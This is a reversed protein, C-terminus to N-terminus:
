FRKLVLFFSFRGEANHFVRVLSFFDSFIQFFRSISIEWRKNKNNIELKKM